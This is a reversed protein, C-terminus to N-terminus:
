YDRTTDRSITYWRRCGATHFWREEKRGEINGVMYARDVDREDPDDLWDPPDPIEGYVWEEMPRAGCLPCTLRLVM